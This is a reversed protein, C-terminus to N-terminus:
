APDKKLFDEILADQRLLWLKSVLPSLASLIPVGRLEVLSSDIVRLTDDIVWINCIKRTFFGAQGILDVVAYGESIMSRDRRVIENFQDRLVPDRLDNKVLDRGRVKKQIVVTRRGDPSVALRTELFFEGFFRKSIDLDYATKEAGKAGLFKEIISFKIVETDGYDHVTHESGWALRRGILAEEYVHPRDGM